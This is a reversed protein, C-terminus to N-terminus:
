RNKLIWGEDAVPIQLDMVAQEWDTPVAGYYSAHNIMDEYKCILKQEKDYFLLWIGGSRSASKKLALTCSKYDVTYSKERGFRDTICITNEYIRLHHNKIKLWELSVVALNLLFLLLFVVPDWYLFTLVLTILLVILSFVSIFKYARCRSNYAQENRLLWDDFVLNGM